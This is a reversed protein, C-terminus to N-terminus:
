ISLKLIMDQHNTSLLLTWGSAGVVGALLHQAYTLKAMDQFTNPLHSVTPITDHSAAM